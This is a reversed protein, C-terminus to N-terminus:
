TEIAIAPIASGDGGRAALESAAPADLANAVLQLRSDTMHLAGEALLFRVDEGACVRWASHSSLDGERSARIM